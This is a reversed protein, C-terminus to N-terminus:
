NENNTESKELEANISDSEPKDKPIYSSNDSFVVKSDFDFDNYDVTLETDKKINEFAHYVYYRGKRIIKCNPKESHNTYRGLNDRVYDKDPDNTFHARYIAVGIDAGKPIDILAFVGKGNIDSKDIYWYKPRIVDRKANSNNATDLFPKAM